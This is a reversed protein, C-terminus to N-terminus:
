PMSLEGALLLHHKRREDAIIEAAASRFARDDGRSYAAFLNRLLDSRAM